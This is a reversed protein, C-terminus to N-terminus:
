IDLCVKVSLTYFNTCTDTTSLMFSRAIYKYKLMLYYLSQYIALFFFFFDHHGKPDIYGNWLSRKKDQSKEVKRLCNALFCLWIKLSYRRLHYLRTYKYKWFDLHGSESKWMESESHWTYQFSDNWEYLFFDRSSTKEVVLINVEERRPNWIYCWLTPKKDGRVSNFCVHDTVKERSRRKPRQPVDIIIIIASREYEHHGGVLTALQHHRSLNISGSIKSKRCSPQVPRLKQSLVFERANDVDFCPWCACVSPWSLKPSWELMDVTGFYHHREM